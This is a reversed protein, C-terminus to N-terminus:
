FDLRLKGHITADGFVGLNADLYLKVCRCQSLAPKHMRAQASHQLRIPKGVFVPPPGSLM